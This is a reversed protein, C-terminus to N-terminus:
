FGFRQAAGVGPVGAPACAPAPAIQAVAPIQTPCSAFANVQPACSCVDFTIPTDAPITVILATPGGIVANTLIFNSNNNCGNVCVFETDSTFCPNCPQFSVQTANLNDVAGNTKAVLSVVAEQNSHIFCGLISGQTNHTGVELFNQIEIGLETQLLSVCSSDLAGFLINQVTSSSFTFRAIPTTLGVQLATAPSAFTNAGFGAGPCTVEPQFVAVGPLPGPAGCGSTPTYVQNNFNTAM